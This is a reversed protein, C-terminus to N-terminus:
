VPKRFVAVTDVGGFASASAVSITEVFTGLQECVSLSWSDLDCRTRERWKEVDPGFILLLHGGPRVCAMCNRLLKELYDVRWLAVNGEFLSQQSADAFHHPACIAIDAMLFPDVFALPSVFHVDFVFERVNPRAHSQLMRGFSLLLERNGDDDTCIYTAAGAVYAGLMSSGLRGHPDYVTAGLPHPAFRRILRAVVLPDWAGVVGSEMMLARHLRLLMTNVHPRVGGKELATRVVKVRKEHVAYVDCAAPAYQWESSKSNWDFRRAQNHRTLYSVRLLM